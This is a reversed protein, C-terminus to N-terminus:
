EAFPYDILGKDEGQYFTSVDPTTLPLGLKIRKPLDPNAIFQRGFAVLDSTGEEVAVQATEPTYGNASILVGNWHPRMAKSAQRAEFKGDSGDGTGPEVIHLYALDGHSRNLEQVLTTFTTKPDSDSIGGFNGWPALRVGIRNPEYVTKVADLLELLFRMRNQISGGYKDTRKNTGDQIFQDILYGNAGHLEIGDFGAERANQAGRVFDQIIEDIEATTLERPAGYPVFEFSKTMCTGTAAIASPAVPLQGDVQFSPHSMRGCHWLQAFFICNKDKVAQVVTKWAQVQETSYIGPTRLYGSAQQSVQTGESILLTGAESARQGYYKSALETAAVNGDLSARSRTMPALAVRHKLQFHGVKIPTFLKNATTM